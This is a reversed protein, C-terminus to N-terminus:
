AAVIELRRCQEAAMAAIVPRMEAVVADVEEPTPHWDLCIMSPLTTTAM